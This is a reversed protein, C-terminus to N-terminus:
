AAGPRGPQRGPVRLSGRHRRARGGPQRARRRRVRPSGHPGGPQRGRRSPGRRLVRLLHDRRASRDVVHRTGDCRHRLAVRNGELDTHSAVEGRPHYTTTATGGGPATETVPRGLVDLEWTSALGTAEVVRTTRGEADYTVETRNGEPDVAATTRGVPDYEYTRRAGDPAIAATVAGTLNREFASVAGADDTVRAIDGADDLIARWANGEMTTGGLRRGAPSYEYAAVGEASEVRRLRGAPDLGLSVTVGLPNTTSISRGAADYAVTTVNGLGNDLSALTGDATWTLTTTVGDADRVVLPLERADLETTLRSGDPLDTASPTRADGDYAFRTVDGARDTVAALRDVDDWEYTETLGDPFTEAVLNDRDDYTFRRVAGDREVVHVLNDHDDYRLRMTHGLGDIMATMRGRRDHVMVNPPSGDAATVTAVGNAQYEYSTERGHSEVQTQVWGDADYTNRFILVGDADIAAAVYGHEDIEYALDGSPREVAVLRDAEDYRYTAVRGDSTTASTALGTAPDLAYAVSRGSEAEVLRITTEAREVTVRSAGDDFAVLTGRDDFRWTRDHGQRVEWGSEVAHLTLRRRHNRTWTGDGRSTFNAAGGDALIFEATPGSVVLRVEAITSWGAGHIGTHEHGRSNYSRVVSLVSALGPLDLDEEPLLLNGNALCIPDDVFGSHPPSGQLETAPIDYAGPPKSVGAGELSKKITSDPITVTGDGDYDDAELLDKRIERVFTENQDWTDLLDKVAGMSPANTPVYYGDGPPCAAMVTTVLSNCTDYEPSRAQRATKAGSVFTQLDHVNASTVSM